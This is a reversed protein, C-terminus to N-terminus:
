TDLPWPKPWITWLRVRILLLTFRKQIRSINQMFITPWCSPCWNCRWDPPGITPVGLVLFFCSFIYFPGGLWFIDRGGCRASVHGTRWKGSKGFHQVVNASYCETSRGQGKRDMGSWRVMYSRATSGTGFTIKAFAWKADDNSSTTATYAASDFASRVSSFDGTFIDEYFFNQFFFYSYVLDCCSEDASESQPHIKFARARANMVCIFSACVFHAESVRQRRRRSLAYFFKIECKWKLRDVVLFPLACAGFNIFDTM